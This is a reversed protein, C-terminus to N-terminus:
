SLTGSVFSFGVDVAEPLGDEYDILIHDLSGDIFDFGTVEVAEPEGDEYTRFVTENTFGGVLDFETVEVAEPEGDDYPPLVIQDLVGSVFGFDVDAAETWSPQLKSATNFAVDIANIDNAPYPRSTVYTGECREVQFVYQPIAGRLDTLDENAMVM